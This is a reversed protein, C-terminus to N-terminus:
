KISRVNEFTEGIFEKSSLKNIYKRIEDLIEQEIKKDAKRRYEGYLRAAQAASIEGRKVLDQLHRPYTLIRLWNMVARPGINRRLLFDKMAQEQETLYKRSGEKHRSVHDAMRLLEMSSVKPFIPQVAERFKEIKDFVNKM